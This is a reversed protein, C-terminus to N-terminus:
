FKKSKAFNETIDLENKITENIDEEYYYFYESLLDESEKNIESTKEKSKEYLDLINKDNIIEDKQM